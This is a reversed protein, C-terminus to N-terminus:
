SGDRLTEYLHNEMLNELTVNARQSATMIVTIAPTIAPWLALLRNYTPVLKNYLATADAVIAPNAALQNKADSYAGLMGLMDVNETDTCSASLNPGLIGADKLLPALLGSSLLQEAHTVDDLHTDIIDLAAKISPLATNVTAQEAATLGLKSYLTSILFSTM